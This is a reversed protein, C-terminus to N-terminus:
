IEHTAFPATSSEVRVPLVSCGSSVHLAHDAARPADGESTFLAGPRYRWIRPRHFRSGFATSVLTVTGNTVSLRRATIVSTVEPVSSLGLESSTTAEPPGM